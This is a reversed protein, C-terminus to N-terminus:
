SSRAAVSRASSNTVAGRRLGGEAKDFLPLGTALIGSPKLGCHPYGHPVIRRPRLPWIMERCPWDARPLRWGDFADGVYAAAVIEGGRVEVRSRLLVLDGNQICDGIMSCGSVCLLFDGPQHPLLASSDIFDIPQALAEQLPGAAIKGVAPLGGVGLLLRCKQDAEFLAVGSAARRGSNASFWETGHDAADSHHQRGPKIGFFVARCGPWVTMTTSCSMRTAAALSQIISM